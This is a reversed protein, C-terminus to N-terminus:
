LPELLRHAIQTAAGKQEQIKARIKEKLTRPDTKLIQEIKTQLEISNNASTVITLNKGLPHKQFQIAERNNHHHPGVLTPLGCALPEMVSHVSKKFSGGVFALDGWTYLEALIGVQDVLLVEGDWTLTESYIQPKFNWKQIEKKLTDIHHSTPEHPVLILRLRGTKVLEATASLLVEEDESWSSGAVLIPTSNKHLKVKLNKSHDLRHFVQDYRSDGISQIPVRVGIQQFGRFDDESVALIRDVLELRWRIVPKALTEWWKLPRSTASFLSIPINQRRAQACLEPWLDTRAIALQLPELRKIFQALPGPLDLPLPASFDVEPTNEIAQRYTPSYYSVFIRHDPRIRRWERVISKAYEFEGSACHIWLTPENGIWRPWDIPQRRLSLTARLKSLFPSLFLAALLGLPAM